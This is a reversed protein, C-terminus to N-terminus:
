TTVLVSWGRQQRLPRKMWWWPQQEWPERQLRGHKRKREERDPNERRCNQPLRRRASSPPPEVEWSARSAGDDIQRSSPPATQTRGSRVPVPKGAPATNRMREWKAELIHYPDSLIIDASMRRKRRRISHTRFTVVVSHEGTLFRLLVVDDGTREMRAAATVTAEDVVM